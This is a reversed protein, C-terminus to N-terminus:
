GCFSRLIEHPSIRWSILDCSLSFWFVEFGSFVSSRLANFVFLCVLSDDALTTRGSLLPQNRRHTLPLPGLRELRQNLVRGLHGTHRLSGVTLSHLYVPEVFHSLLAGQLGLVNWRPLRLRSPSSTLPPLRHNFVLHLFSFFYLHVCERACARACVCVPLFCCCNAGLPQLAISDPAFPSSETVAPSLKIMIKICSTIFQHVAVPGVVCVVCVCLCVCM